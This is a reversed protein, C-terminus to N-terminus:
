SVLSPVLFNMLFKAIFTPTYSYIKRPLKYSDNLDLIQSNRRTSYSFVKINDSKM